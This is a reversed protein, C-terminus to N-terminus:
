QLILQSRRVASRRDDLEHAVHIALWAATERGPARRAIWKGAQFNCALGVAWFLPQVLTKLLTEAPVSTKLERLIPGFITSAFLAAVVLLVSFGPPLLLGVLFGRFALGAMHFRDITIESWLLSLTSRLVSSWFWIRGRTGIGEMLDGVMTAARDRTTALALVWEAMSDKRVM